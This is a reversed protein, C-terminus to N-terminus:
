PKVEVQPTVPAASVPASVPVSWLLQAAYARWPRWREARAVTDPASAPEARTGVAQRLGLDGAPFADPDRLSRLAVMEATWPGVGPVTQLRERLGDASAASDLWAPDEAWKKALGRLAAARGRFIGLKELEADVLSAPTPFRRSLGTPAGALAVPAGYTTVLRGMLTTAAAVSVQQGLVVRLACEWANWAGIVRLGPRAALRPALLPDRALVAAIAAPDAGLDFLHRLREVVQPLADWRPLQLEASLHAPGERRVRV